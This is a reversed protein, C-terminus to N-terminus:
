NMEDIFDINHIGDIFKYKIDNIVEEWMDNQLYWYVRNCFFGSEGTNFWNLGTDEVFKHLVNVIPHSPRMILIKNVIEMPLIINNNM